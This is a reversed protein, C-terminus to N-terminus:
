CFVAANGAFGRQHGLLRAAELPTHGRKNKRKKDAGKNLLWAVCAPKDRYVACHLYSTYACWYFLDAIPMSKLFGMNRLHWVIRTIVSDFGTEFHVTANINRLMGKDYLLDLVRVDNPYQYEKTWLVYMGLTNFGPPTLSQFTAGHELAKLVIEYVGIGGAYIENTMSFHDAKALWNTKVKQMYHVAMESNFSDLSATFPDRFTPKLFKGAMWLGGGWSFKYPDAKGDILANFINKGSEGYGIRMVIHLPTNGRYATRLNQPLAMNVDAKQCILYQVIPFNNSMVAYFLPAFNHKGGCKKLPKAEDFKFAKSFTPWTDYKPRTDLDKLDKLIVNQHALIWRYGSLDKYRSRAELQFDLLQCLVNSIKDKDCDIAVPAGNIEVMHNRSCCSFNGTGVPDKTLMDDADPTFLTVNTASEVLIMDKPKSSSNVLSSVIAELRCWGRSQWSSLQCDSGDEGHAIVPCLVLLITAQHIYAPVSNVARLMLQLRKIEKENADLPLPSREDSINGQSHRAKIQPVSMWDFWILSNKLVKGFNKKAPVGPQGAMSDAPFIDDNNLLRRLAAKLTSFQHGTHDPHTYSTWQHSVFIIKDNEDPIVFKDIKEIEDLNPLKEFQLLDDIRVCHMDFLVEAVKPSLDLEASQQREEIWARKASWPNQGNWVFDDNGPNVKAISEKRSHISFRPLSFFSSNRTSSWGQTINISGRSKRGFSWRRGISGRPDSAQSNSM